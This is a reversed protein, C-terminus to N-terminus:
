RRRRRLALGFLATVALAGVGPEPILYITAGFQSADSGDTTDGNFLPSLAIDITDGVQAGEIVVFDEQLTSNNSSVSDVVEGNHLVFLTTGGANNSKALDFDVLLNGDEGAPVTWRKTIWQEEPQNTGNPHGDTANTFTWPQAAATNGDWATGSWFQTAGDWAGQGDGGAYQNFTGGPSQGVTPQNNAFTALYGYTWDDQGQVGSFELRSDAIVGLTEFTVARNITGGFDSGDSGDGRDGNAAEPTLAFDIVDGPNLAVNVTGSLARQAPDSDLTFGSAVENGNAFVRIGAGQPNVNTSEILWNIEFSQSVARAPLAASATYRRIAWHESGNNAGNPHGDNGPGVLTWPANSAAVGFGSGRTQGSVFQIFEGTSYTSDGDATYDYYGYNWGNADPVGAAPFSVVFDLNSDALTERVVTPVGSAATVSAAALLSFLVPRRMIPLNLFTEYCIANEGVLRNRAGVRGALLRSALATASAIPPPMALTVM